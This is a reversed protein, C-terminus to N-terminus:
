DTKGIYHEKCAPCQIDYIINAKQTTKIKYKALCFMEMKKANGSTMFKVDEKLWRKMKGQFWTLLTEGIKGM